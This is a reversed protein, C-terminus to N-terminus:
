KADRRINLLSNQLTAFQGCTYNVLAILLNDYAPIMFLQLAAMFVHFTYVLIYPFGTLNDFPTWTRFPIRWLSPSQDDAGTPATSNAETPSGGGRQSLAEGLPILGISIIAGSLLSTWVLYSLRTERVRKKMVALQAPTAKQLPACWFVTHIM